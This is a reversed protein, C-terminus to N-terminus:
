PAEGGPDDAALTSAVPSEPGNRLEAVTGPLPVIRRGCDHRRIHYERTESLQGQPHLLVCIRLKRCLPCRGYHISEPKHM